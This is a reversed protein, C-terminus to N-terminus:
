AGVEAHIAGPGDATVVTIEADGFAGGADTAHAASVGIERYGATLLIARHEPSHMWLYILEKPTISGRGLTEGAYYAKCHNMITTMSQHYFGDTSALHSGWREALREASSVGLAKLSGDRILPLSPAAAAFM